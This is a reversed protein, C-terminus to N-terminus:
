DFFYTVNETDFVTSFGDGFVWISWDTAWNELEGASTTSSVQRNNTAAGADVSRGIDKDSTYWCDTVVGTELLKGVIGGKDLLAGPNAVSYCSDVTGYAIGAIGGANILGSIETNRTSCYRIMSSFMYGAIGGATRGAVKGGTVQVNQIISRERPTENPVYMYGVVAGAYAASPQNVTVNELTFNAIVQDIGLTAFMGANGNSATFEVNSIKHNGGDFDGLFTMAQYQAGGCDIDATLQVRQDARVQDSNATFDEWDASGSIYLVPDGAALGDKFSAHDVQAAVAGVPLAALCFACALVSSILKKKM